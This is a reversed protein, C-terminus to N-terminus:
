LLPVVCFRVLVTVQVEDAVVIAVILLPPSAVLTAFPVAVIVAVDPVMWPAAVNVTVAATSVEIATVGADGDTGAPSFCCNVAVPVYVSPLVWSRVCDALQADDTEATAVIPVAPYAVLTVGPVVVIVAVEPETVPEAFTATVAGTTTDNDTLGPLAEIALPALWCNATVPVYLSPLACSRVPETAQFEDEATALIALPPNALPCPTPVAIMVAVDPEILPDAVSFTPCATSTEIATVGALADKAMPVVSGRTAVPVYLSPLVRTTVFVAVQLVASELMAVM